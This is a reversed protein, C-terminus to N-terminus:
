HSLLIPMRLAQLVGRTAGGLVFAKLRSHGFGGMVLLDAGVTLAEQQLCEAIPRGALKVSLPRANLGRHQLAHAMDQAIDAHELPKEGQVTLVTILMDAAMLHSADALARAAVRSGDWALAMHRIPKSPLPPVLICPRGAGFIVSEALEQIVPKDVAWPLFTLDFYRSAEAAATGTLGPVVERTSFEVSSQGHDLGGVMAQLAKCQTRSNSETTQIMDPINLLTSGISPSLYPIKVAFTMVHLDYGLAVALHVGAAVADDPLVDPYTVLPLYALHFNAM